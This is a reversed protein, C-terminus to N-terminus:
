QAPGHLRRYLDALIKRELDHAYRQTVWAENQRPTTAAELEAPTRNAVSDYSGAAPNIQLHIESGQRQIAVTAQAVIRGDEPRLRLSAVRRAPSAGLLREAGADIPQPEASIVGAQRDAQVLRFYQSMVQQGATFAADYDVIGLSRATGPTRQACGGAALIALAALAPLCTLIHAEHPKM